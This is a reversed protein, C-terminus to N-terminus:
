RGAETVIQALLAMGDGVSADAPLTWDFAYDDLDTESVHQDVVGVRDLRVVVGGRSRIADAENVFRVDDIIAVHDGFAAIAGFTRRIWVLPDVDRHMMGVHQVIQRWTWGPYPSPSNKEGGFLQEATAGYLSAVVRKLPEAFSYVLRGPARAAFARALTTKGAGIKGSLGIILSM